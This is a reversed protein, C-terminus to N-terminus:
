RIRNLPSAALLSELKAVQERTSNRMWDEPAAAYAEELQARAASDGVGLMAEGLTALVWYRNAAAQGSAQAEISAAPPPNDLLIRRCIETVERRIRRASVFDAIADSPDTATVARVNLLFALNIGNYYDNRIYFGREHARVAADLYTRDGTLNWLRKHIAGWLGLTETDNSTDPELPLLLARAEKLAAEESPHKSKYTLLALRQVIYPDESREPAAAAMSSRIAALLTKATVFDSRKAAADVEQMLVSHTPTPSSAASSPLTTARSGTTGIAPAVLGPIFSYVPSDVAPTPSASLIQKVAGTLVAMFRKAESVGIDDGLHHYQRIVVHNVDFPPKMGDEAIVVTTYPRLAHRIGLEYFANKNSTSLDAVVVDANLLQDYMPVDILGSHVIEDARVCSLGAAVVAPKIMNHYANDLDYIKGSEFDTKKGFGMVVFCTGNGNTM